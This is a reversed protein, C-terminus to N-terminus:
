VYVLVFRFFVDIIERIKSLFKSEAVSGIREFVTVRAFLHDQIRQADSNRSLIFVAKLVQVLSM